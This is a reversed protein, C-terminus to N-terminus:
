ALSDQLKEWSRDAMCVAKKMDNALQNHDVVNRICLNGGDNRCVANFLHNCIHLAMYEINYDTLDIDKLMIRLCGRAKKYDDTKM